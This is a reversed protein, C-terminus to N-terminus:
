GAGTEGEGAESADEAGDDMSPDVDEAQRGAKPLSGGPVGRSGIEGADDDPSGPTSTVDTM